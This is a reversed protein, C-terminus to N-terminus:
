CTFTSVVMGDRTGVLQRIMQGELTDHCIHGRGGVGALVCLLYICYFTEVWELVIFIRFIYNSTYPPAPPHNTWNTPKTLCM